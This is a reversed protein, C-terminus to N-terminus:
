WGNGAWQEAIAKAIGPYTKSRLKGRDESPAMKWIRQERGEVINTPKLAELGYLWFGTKKTEGHGFQWPQIYNPKPFNGLANLVGVPNELGVCKCVSTAKDWLKQTWKVAEIRESHRPQGVGYWRNGSVAIKTCPPHLIVIDWKKLDLAKFIDMQYHHEPMGGSCEVIDCSKANHGMERLAKTVEQSEECGVLIDLACFRNTVGYLPLQPKTDIQKQM